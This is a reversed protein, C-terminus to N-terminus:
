EIPGGQSPHRDGSAQLWAEVLRPVDTAAVTWLRRYEAVDEGIQVQVPYGQNRVLLTLAGDEDRSLLVLEFSSNNTREAIVITRSPDHDPYM